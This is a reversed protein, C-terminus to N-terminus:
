GEEQDGGRGMRYKIGYNIIFDLEEDTFGYHRALLRDVDDMVGKAERPRFQEVQIEGTISHNISVLVSSCDLSEELRRALESCDSVVLSASVPFTRYDSPNFDRCNTRVQYFWYFLSSNLLVFARDKTAQDCFSICHERTSSSEQGRRLFRPPRPTITFWHGVGTIKYYVKHAADQPVIWSGLTSKIATIRRIIRQELPSWTKPFCGLVEHEPARVYHITQFLSPREEKYWKYYRTVELDAKGPAQSRESLVIAIRSHYIGEFLKSPRDDFTSSFIVRASRLLLARASDMRQTSVFPQQVVMGLRGGNRLVDNSRELCLAYTNGCQETEFGKTTYSKRTASLEVYPPNGIAVGFGGMKMIGHFEIFWHFPQHTKLWAQYRSASSSDVGCEGALYSNLESELAGM